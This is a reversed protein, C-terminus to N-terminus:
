HNDGKLIDMNKVDQVKTGEFLWVFDNMQTFSIQSFGAKSLATYVTDLLPYYERRLDEALDSYGRSEAEEIVNDYVDQTVFITDAFVLKGGEALQQAYFRVAESKEEDDLHHFVYSSVITDLPKDPLPYDQMDGDHITFDDPLKEKALKRMEPSPEVAFVEKGANLLKETLNGTGIGFELVHNGSRNVIEALIEEYGAFVEKYEEDNGKVSADYNKAWGTFVEIFERGM